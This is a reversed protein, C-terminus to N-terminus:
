QSVPGTRPINTSSSIKSYYWNDVPYIEGLPRVFCGGNLKWDRKPFSMGSLKNPSLYCSEKANVAVRSGHYVPQKWTNGRMLHTFSSTGPAICWIVMTLIEWTLDRTKFNSARTTMAGHFRAPPPQANSARATMAGHFRVPPPQANLFSTIYPIPQQKLIRALSIPWQIRAWSFTRLEGKNCGSHNHVWWQSAISNMVGNHGFTKRGCFKLYWKLTTSNGLINGQVSRIGKWGCFKFNMEFCNFKGLINGIAFGSSQPLM